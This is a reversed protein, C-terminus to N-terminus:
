ARTCTNKEGLFNFPLWSSDNVPGGCSHIASKWFIFSTYAKDEVLIIGYQTADNLGKIVQSLSPHESLQIRAMEPIETVVPENAVARGGPECEEDLRVAVM